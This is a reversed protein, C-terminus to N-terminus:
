YGRPNFETQYSGVTRDQMLRLYEPDLVYLQHTSIGSNPDDLDVWRGLNTGTQPLWVLRKKADRFDFNLETPGTSVTKADELTARLTSGILLDVRYTGAALFSSVYHGNADTKNTSIIKGDKREVRIEANKIPRGKTDRVVGEFDSKGSASANGAVFGLALFVAVIRPLIINM